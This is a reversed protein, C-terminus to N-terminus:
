IIQGAKAANRRKADELAKQLREEHALNTPPNAPLGSSSPPAPPPPPSPAAGHVGAEPGNPVGLFLTLKVFEDNTRRSDERILALRHELDHMLKDDEKSKEEELRLFVEPQAAALKAKAVSVEFAATNLLMDAVHFTQVIQESSTALIATISRAKTVEELGVSSDGSSPLSEFARGSAVRRVAKMLCEMYDQNAGVGRLTNRDLLDMLKNAREDRQRCYDVIASKEAHEFQKELQKVKAVNGLTYWPSVETKKLRRDRELVAEFAKQHRMELKQHLALLYSMIPALAYRGSFDEFMDKGVLADNIKNSYDEYIPKLQDIEYHLRAWVVDFVTKLFMRYEHRDEEAKTAAESRKFEAELESIDGYGIEHDDFLADVKRESEGQRIQRAKENKEREKKAKNDWALVSQHIFGFDDLVADTAMKMEYSETSMSQITGFRPLVAVLPDFDSRVFHRRDQPIDPRRDVESNTPKLIQDEMSSATLPRSHKDQIRTDSANTDDETNQPFSEKYSPSGNRLSGLKEAAFPKFASQRKRSVDTTTPYSASVKLPLYLPKPGEQTGRRTDNSSIAIPADSSPSTSPNIYSAFQNWIKSVKERPTNIEHAPNKGKEENNRLREIIPRGGPSYQMEDAPSELKLSDVGGTSKGVNDDDRLSVPSLVSTGASALSTILKGPVGEPITQVPSENNPPLAPLAKQSRKTMARALHKINTGTPTPGATSPDDDAGYLIARLKSERNAFATFIAFKEKDVKTQAEEHLMAVYRNLSAKGWPDLNAYLEDLGNSKQPLTSESKIEPDKLPGEQPQKKVSNQCREKDRKEEEPQETILLQELMVPIEEHTPAGIARTEAEQEPRSQEQHSDGASTSSPVASHTRNNTNFDAEDKFSSKRTPLEDPKPVIKDQDPTETLTEQLDGQAIQLLSSQNTTVGITKSHGIDSAQKAQIHDKGPDETWARIADDVNIDQSEHPPSKQPISMAQSKDHLPSPSQRTSSPTNEQHDPQSTERVQELDPVPADPLRQILASPSAPPSPPLELQFTHDQRKMGNVSSSRTPLEATTMGLNKKIQPESSGYLETDDVEEAEYDGFHEWDSPGGFGLASASYSEVLPQSTPMELNEGQHVSASPPRKAEEGSKAAEPPKADTSKSQGNKDSLNMSSHPSHWYFSDASQRGDRENNPASQAQHQRHSWVSEAHRPSRPSRPSGLSKTTSQQLSESFIPITPSSHVTDSSSRKHSRSVDNDNTQTHSLYDFYYEGSTARPDHSSNENAPDSLAQERRGQRDVYYQIDRDAESLHVSYPPPDDLDFAQDVHHEQSEVRSNSSSEATPHSPKPNPQDHHQNPGWHHAEGTKRTKDFDTEDSSFNERSPEVEGASLQRIKPPIPPPAKQPQPPFASPRDKEFSSAKNVTKMVPKHAPKYVVPKLIESDQSAQASHFPTSRLSDSSQPTTSSQYSQLGNPKQPSRPQNIHRCSDALIVGCSLRVCLASVPLPPKLQQVQSPTQHRVQKAGLKFM